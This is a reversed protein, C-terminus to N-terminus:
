GQAPSTPRREGPGPRSAQDREIGARYARATWFRLDPAPRDVQFLDFRVWDSGIGSAAVAGSALAVAYLEHPVRYYASHQGAGIAFIRRRAILAIYRCQAFSPSYAFCDGCGAAASMIAEGPDSHCSPNHEALWALAASSAAADVHDIIAGDSRYPIASGPVPAM